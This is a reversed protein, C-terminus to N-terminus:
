LIKQWAKKGTINRWQRKSWLIPTKRGGLMSRRRSQRRSVEARRRTTVREELVAEAAARRKVGEEEEEGVVVVDMKSRQPPMRQPFLANVSLFAVFFTVSSNELLTGKGKGRSSAAGAAKANKKAVKTTKSAKAAKAMIIPQESPLLRLSDEVSPYSSCDVIVLIFLSCCGVYTPPLYISFVIPVKDITGRVV